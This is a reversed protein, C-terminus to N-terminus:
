SRLVWNEAIAEAYGVSKDHCQVEASLEKDEFLSVYYDLDAPRRFVVAKRGEEWFQSIIIINNSM